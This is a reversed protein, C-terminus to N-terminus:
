PVCFLLPAEQLEPDNSDIVGLLVALAGPGPGGGQPKPQLAVVPCRRLHQGHAARASRSCQGGRRRTLAGQTHILASDEVLIVAGRVGNSIKFTHHSTGVKGDGVSAM